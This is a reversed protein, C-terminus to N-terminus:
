RAYNQRHRKRCTKCSRRSRSSKQNRSRGKTKIQKKIYEFFEDENRFQGELILPRPDDPNLPWELTYVILGEEEETYVDVILNLKGTYEVCFQDRLYKKIKEILEM